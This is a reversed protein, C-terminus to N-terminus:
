EKGIEGRGKRGCAHRPKMISSLCHLGWAWRIDMVALMNMITTKVDSSSSMSAGDVGVDCEQDSMIVRGSKWGHM